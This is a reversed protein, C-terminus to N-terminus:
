KESLIELKQGPWGQVTLRRNRGKKYSPDRTHAVVSPKNKSIPDQESKKGLRTKFCSGEKEV